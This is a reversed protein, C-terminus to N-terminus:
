LQLLILDLDTTVEDLIDYFYKSFVLFFKLFSRSSCHVHDVIIKMVIEYWFM